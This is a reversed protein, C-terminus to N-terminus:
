IQVDQRRTVMETAASQIVTPIQVTEAAAIRTTETQERMEERSSRIQQLDKMSILLLDQGQQRDEKAATLANREKTETRGAPAATQVHLSILVLDATEAAQDTEKIRLTRRRQMQLDAKTEQDPSDRLVVKRMEAQSVASTKRDTGRLDEMTAPLPLHDKRKRKM